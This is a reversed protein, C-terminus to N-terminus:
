LYAEPFLDALPRDAEYETIPALPPFQSSDAGSKRTNRQSSVASQQHSMNDLRLQGAEELRQQRRSGSKCRNAASEKAAAAVMVWPKWPEFIGGWPLHFDSKHSVPSTLELQVGQLRNTIQPKERNQGYAAALKHGGGAARIQYSRNFM